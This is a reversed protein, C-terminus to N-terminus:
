WVFERWFLTAPVVFVHVICRIHLHASLTTHTAVACVEGSPAIFGGEFADNAETVTKRQRAIERSHHRAFGPCHSCLHPPHAIQMMGKNTTM